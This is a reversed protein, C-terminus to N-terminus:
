GPAVGAWRALTSWASEPMLVAAGNHAVHMLYAVAFAWGVGRVRRWAVLMWADIFFFPLAGVAMLGYLAVHLGGVSAGCLAAGLWWRRLSVPVFCMVIGTELLPAIWVVIGIDVMAREFARDAYPTAYPSLLLASAVSVALGVSWLTVTLWALRGLSHPEDPYARHPALRLEAM